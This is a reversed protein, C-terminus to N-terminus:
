IHFFIFQASAAVSSVPVDRLSVCFGHTGMSEMPVLPCGLNLHFGHAGLFDM